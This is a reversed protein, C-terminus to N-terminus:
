LRLVVSRILSDAGPQPAPTSAAGLRLAVPPPAAVFAVPSAAREPGPRDQAPSPLTRGECCDLPLLGQCPATPTAVGSRPARCCTHDASAGRSLALALTCAAGLAIVLSSALRLHRRVVATEGVVGPGDVPSTARM